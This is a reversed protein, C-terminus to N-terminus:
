WASTSSNFYRPFLMAPTSSMVTLWALSNKVEFFIFTLDSKQSKKKITKLKNRLTRIQNCITQKLTLSFSIENKRTKSHQFTHFPREKKTVKRYIFSLIVKNKRCKNEDNRCNKDINQWIACVALCYYQCADM